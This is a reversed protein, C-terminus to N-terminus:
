GGKQFLTKAMANFDPQGTAKDIPVGNPNEATPKFADRLDNKARQDLGEWYAKPIDGLKSFDARTNGGVGSIIDDISAM